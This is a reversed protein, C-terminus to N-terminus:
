ASRMAPLNTCVGISRDSSPSCGHLAGGPAVSPPEHVRACVVVVQVRALAAFPCNAVRRSLGQPHRRPARRSRRRHHIPSQRSPRPLPAAIRSSPQQSRLCCCTLSHASSARAPSGLRRQRTSRRHPLTLLTLPSGPCRTTRNLRAWVHDARSQVSAASRSEPEPQSTHVRVSVHSVPAPARLLISLLVPPQQRHISPASRSPAAAAAFPQPHRVTAPVVLPSKRKQQQTHASHCHRHVTRGEKGRGAEM